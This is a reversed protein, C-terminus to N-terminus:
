FISSISAKYGYFIQLYQVEHIKVNENQMSFVFTLYITQHENIHFFCKVRYIVVNDKLGVAMIFLM